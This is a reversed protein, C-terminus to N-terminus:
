RLGNVDPLHSPTRSASAERSSGRKGPDRIQPALDEPRIAPAPAELGMDDDDQAHSAIEDLTPEDEPELPPPEVMESAERTFQDLPTLKPDPSEPKPSRPKYVPMTCRPITSDGTPLRPRAGPFVERVAEPSYIQNIRALVEDQTTEWMGVVHIDTVADEGHINQLIPLEPFVIPRTRDRYVQTSQDGGLGVVCRLLQFGAM